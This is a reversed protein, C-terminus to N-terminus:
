GHKGRGSYNCLIYILSKGMKEAPLTLAQTPTKNMNYSSGIMVYKSKKPHIQLKNKSIWKSINGLDDNLTFILDSSNKSSTYIETDDAYLSTITNNLNEPM